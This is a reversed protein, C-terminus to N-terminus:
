PQRQAGLYQQAPLAGPTEDRGESLFHRNAFRIECPLWQRFRQHLSARLKMTLIETDHQLQIHVHFVM